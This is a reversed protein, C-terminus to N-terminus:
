VNEDENSHSIDSGPALYKSTKIQMSGRNGNETRLYGHAILARVDDRIDVAKGKIDREIMRQSVPDLSSAVYEYIDHRRRNIRAKPTDPEPTQWQWTIDGTETAAVHLLRALTKMPGVHGPRDKAIKLKLTTQRGRSVAEETDLIYAAGDVAALKHQAGIAWRNNEGTQKSVHDIILLAAGQSTLPRLVQTIVQAIGANDNPDAGFQSAIEAMADIVILTIGDLQTHLNLTQGRAQPDAYKLLHLNPTALQRLRKILTQPNDELDIWAVTNGAALEQSTIINAIWTKGMGPEGAITHIRGPYLLPNTDTAGITTVIDPATGDLYSSIDVWTYSSSDELTDVTELTDPQEAQDWTAWNTPYDLADALNTAGLESIQDTIDKGHTPLTVTVAIGVAALAHAVHAAHQRGPTDNDAIVVVWDFGAQTIQTTYEPRWKGAGDTLTTAQYGHKTLTDADREGEVVFLPKGTTAWQAFKDLNYLVRDVGQLGWRHTGNIIARQKFTKPQYRLKEYVPTGDTNRYTYTHTLVPTAEKPKPNYLDRAQLGIAQCVADVSCGAHCHLLVRDDKRTVSLSPTTDAHAPCRAQGRANLPHGHRELQEVVTQYADTM